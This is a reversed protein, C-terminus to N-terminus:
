RVRTYCRLGGDVLAAAAVAVRDEGFQGAEIDTRRFPGLLELASTPWGCSPLLRRSTRPSPTSPPSVPQPFPTVDMLTMRRQGEGAKRRSSHQKARSARASPHPPIRRGRPHFATPYLWWNKPRRRNPSAGFSHHARIINSPEAAETTPTWGYTAVPSMCLTKPTLVADEHRFRQLM